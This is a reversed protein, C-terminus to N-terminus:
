PKQYGEAQLQFAKAYRGNKEMLQKHSGEEVIKGKDFVIIRDANRVTSFRHSIIIVTKNEIFKYIRNFINAEAVADISATPEDLILVPANRYFFRAIALKQWQGTSPRIGGEYRESLIQSYNNEYELIFAEADAKRAAEKIEEYNVEEDSIRGLSINEFVSLDDYTNYDQYLVGLNNFWSKQEIQTLDIGDVLIEGKSAPYINSILKVLTTKGAGNEGVIAIKEGSNITLNLNEIVYQKSEPYAFSVDKLEIFPPKSLNSLVVKNESDPEPYNILQLYEDLEPKIGIYSALNSSFNGVDNALSILANIFFLIQGVSIVEEIALNIIQYTGFLIISINLLSNVVDFLGWDRYIKKSRSLYTETYQIFYKRLYDYANLLKIEKLQAPDALKGMVSSSRRNAVTTDKGLKFIRDISLRNFFISPISAAVLLLTTVPITLALPVIAFALSVIVAILQSMRILVRRPLSLNEEVRHLLNQLKPSELDAPQLRSLKTQILDRSLKFGIAFHVNNNAYNWFAHVLATFFRFLGYALMALFIPNTDQLEPYNIYDIVQDILWGTLAAQMLSRSYSWIDSFFVSLVLVPYKHFSTKLMWATNSFLSLM